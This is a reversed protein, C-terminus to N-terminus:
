HDGIAAEGAEERLVDVLKEPMSLMPVHGSPLRVTRVAGGASALMGEQVYPPICRDSECVLYTTPIHRWGVHKLPTAFAALDSHTTYPSWYAALDASTDNHFAYIPDDAYFNAGKDGGTAYALYGSTSFTWHHSVEFRVWRPEMKYRAIIDPPSEGEHLLWAAIFVLRVAGGSKGVQLREQSGLGKVAECSPISGYSHAVVIIEKGSDSLEELVQRVAIIDPENSSLPVTSGTSPLTVIRVQFGHSELLKATNAYYSPSLFNGPVLVSIPKNSSM